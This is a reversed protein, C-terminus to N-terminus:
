MWTPMPHKPFGYDGLQHCFIAGANEAYMGDKTIFLTKVSM